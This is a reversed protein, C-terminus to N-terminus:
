FENADIVKLTGLAAKLKQATEEALADNWILIHVNPGADMTMMPRRYTEAGHLETMQQSVDRIVGLVQLSKPTFYGFAPVSTEFLAHMDWSEAWVTEVANNWAAASVTSQRLDKALSALREEARETRGRFLLSSVVRSHAESSSVSKKSEDVIVAIHRINEKLPFGDMPEVGSERWLCWPSFFSRCSSGSGERSLAALTKRGNLSATERKCLEAMALTLAAFSSASSALGCDSPFSNASEVVLSTKDPLGVDFRKLCTSAHALFRDQGKKSLAPRHFGEAELPRWVFSDTLDPEFRVRVRTRLHDLTWSISANTPVNAKVKGMYKILAINSPAEATVWEMIDKPDIM